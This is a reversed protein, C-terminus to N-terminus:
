LHSGKMVESICTQVVTTGGLHRDKLYPESINKKKKFEKDRVQQYDVKPVTQRENNSSSFSQLGAM